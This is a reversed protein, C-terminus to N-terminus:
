VSAPITITATRSTVSAGSSDTVICRRYVKTSSGTGAPISVILTNSTAGSVDSWSSKDTSSQWQYALGEGQAEIILTASSGRPVYYDKPETIIQLTDDGTNGNDDGSDGSDGSDEGSSASTITIKAERSVVSDGYADKVVCRRWVPGTSGVTFTLTDTTGSSDTVNAWNAPAGGSTSTNYQWQYTLGDGAAEISMTGSGYAPVTMDEPQTVIQLGGDVLVTVTAIDSKVVAGDPDLVFCLYQYKTAETVVPMELTISAASDATLRSLVGDSGVRYWQYRLTGTGEAVLSLTVSKGGVVSVDEPQTTIVLDSTIVVTVVESTLTTGHKNTAVCRYKGARIPATNTLVTQNNTVGTITAWGTEALNLQEWRYTIDYGKVEYRLSWTEGAAVTVDRPQVIVVMPPSGVRLFSLSGDSRPVFAFNGFQAREEVEVVVNGTYFDVGNWLGLAVGNKRFIIGKENDVELVISNDGSGITVATEGSFRIYKYLEEFKSQVDSDVDGIQQTTTTFTMEIQKSNQKLSSETTQKFETYEDNTVYSETASSIMGQTTAIIEAKETEIVGNLREEAESVLSIDLIFDEGDPNKYWKIYNGSDGVLFQGESDMYIGPAAMNDITAKAGSYLVGLGTEEGEEPELTEITFGAITAGFATLDSVFIKDATVSKAVLVTGLLGNELEEQSVQEPVVVGEQMNLQYYLGDEGKILLRDAKLTNANILDGHITVAVLEHTVYGDETAIENFKGSRVLLKDIAAQDVNLLDIDAYKADLNDVTIQDAKLKKIEANVANFDDVYLARFDGLDAQVVNATIRVAELDTIKAYDAELVDTDIKTARLYDIEAEAATLKGNVLLDNVTLDNIFAENVDLRGDLTLNGDALEDLRARIEALEADSFSGAVISDIEARLADESAYIDNQGVSPSTINGTITASHDKIQVTVREGDQTTTTQDVPTLLESGDLQVYTRGDHVKVTGLHTSEKSTKKNDRTAKVFQSILDTSLSM